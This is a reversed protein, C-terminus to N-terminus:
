AADRPHMAGIGQGGRHRRAAISARELLAILSQQLVVPQLALRDVRGLRVLVAVHLLAMALELPRQVLRQHQAAAAVEGIPRGVRREQPLQEGLPILTPPCPQQLLQRQQPGQRGLTDVGILADVHSHIGAAGDVEAAVGVRHGAPQDAFPDLGAQVRVVDLDPVGLTQDFAQGAQAAPALVADGVPVDDVPQHALRPREGVIAVAVVQEWRTAEAQDVVPQDLLM